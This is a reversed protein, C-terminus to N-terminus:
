QQAVDGHQDMGDFHNGFDFGAAQYDVHGGANTQHGGTMGETGYTMYAAQQGPYFQFGVQNQMYMSPDQGMMKRQSNPSLQQPHHHAGVTTIGYTNPDYMMNQYAMPDASASYMATTMDPAAGLMPYMHGNQAGSAPMPSKSRMMWDQAGGGAGQQSGSGQHSAAAGGTASAGGQQAYIPPSKSRYNWDMAMSAAAGGTANSPAGTMLPNRISSWDYPPAPYSSSLVNYGQGGQSMGQADFMMGSAGAVAAGNEGGKTKKGSKKVKKNDPLEMGQPTMATPRGPEAAAAASRKKGKKSKEAADGGFSSSQMSNNNLPPPPPPMGSTPGQPYYMPSGQQQYYMTSQAGSSSSSVAATMAAAQAPDLFGANVAAAARAAIREELRRKAKKTKPYKIIPISSKPPDPIKVPLAVNTDPHMLRIHRACNAQQTFSKNCMPCAYPREGTHVRAHTKLSGKTVFEKGCLECIYQGMEGPVAPIMKAITPLVPAPIPAVQRHIPVPANHKNSSFKTSSPMPPPILPPPVFAQHPMMMPMSGSPASAASTEKKAKKASNKEASKAERSAAKAAKQELKKQGKEQAAKEKAKQSAKKVKEKLKADKEARAKAKKEAKADKEAVKAMQAALSAPPPPVFGMAGPIFLKLGSGDDRPKKIRPKKPKDLGDEGGEQKQTKRKANLQEDTGSSGEGKALPTEDQNDDGIVATSTIVQAQTETATSALHSEVADDSAGTAAGSAVEETDPNEM